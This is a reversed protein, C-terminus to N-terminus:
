EQKAQADLWSFVIARKRIWKAEAVALPQSNDMMWEIVGKIGDPVGAAPVRRCLRLDDPLSSAIELGASECTMWLWEGEIRLDDPDALSGDEVPRWTWQEDSM